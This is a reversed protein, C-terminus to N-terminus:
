EESEKDLLKNGVYEGLKMTGFYVGIAVGLALFEM